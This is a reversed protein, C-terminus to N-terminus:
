HRKIFIQSDCIICQVKSSNDNGDKQFFYYNYGQWVQGTPYSHKWQHTPAYGRMAAINDKAVSFRLITAIDVSGQLKREPVM